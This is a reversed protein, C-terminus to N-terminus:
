GQGCNPEQKIGELESKFGRQMLEKGADLISKGNYLVDYVQKTIPMDIDHAKGLEYATKAAFFGEAVTLTQALIEAPKEGRAIRRGLTRNRSLDGAATLVLDGIGALGLFTLPDAGRAVGLRTIEALGRTILAARANHGLGLEDTAGVAIAIVNKLAGGLQVGVVDDSTYVRFVGQHLLRQVRTAAACRPSAVVVDTPLSRAVEKAFSPGSLVAISEPPFDSLTEGLVETMLALSGAEIGKSVVCAVADREIFPAAQTSIARLHKSPCAFIVLEAGTVVEEMATSAVLDEPLHEGALYLENYHKSNITEVVDREFAWIMVSHGARAGQIALATGWAGAGIVGIKAM